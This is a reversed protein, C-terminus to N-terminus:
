QPLPAHGSQIPNSEIPSGASPSAEDQDGANKKLGWWHDGFMLKGLMEMQEARSKFGRCIQERIDPDSAWEFFQEKLTKSAQAQDFELRQRELRLREASHDGRRMEVIDACLEHLRRWNDQPDTAQFARTAVLYRAALWLALKDTLPPGEVAQFEATDGALDRALVLAEQHALWERYGGAKWESLNQERVPKGGFEAALAAQVEPVTNLWAVLRKGSEGDGLRRNLQDRIVRPLRAIKGNRTLNM